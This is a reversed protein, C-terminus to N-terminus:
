LHTIQQFWTTPKGSHGSAAHFPRLIQYHCSINSSRPQMMELIRNNNTVDGAFFLAKEIPYFSVPWANVLAADTTNIGGVPKVTTFVVDYTGPCVNAFSYAGSTTTTTTHIITTGQKLDVIVNNMVTNAGNYYKVTGTIPIAAPESVTLNGTVPGCANVDTVSWPYNIGALIGTFIGTGNTVGNFTYSYPPTGGGATMTVTATGGFCTIPSTVTAGGTLVPPETVSLTGTVPGCSNADTVSWAYDLGAVVSFTQTTNVTTVSSGNFTYTYPTTGGGATMTITANGGNCLIPSTESAGGSLLAPETVDLTGTVPGCSNADTVSWAYGLGAVVSFTQTTNVTTVSSGNFTYTYPTTGGGATMTITANGGNCLIPSTESAGGSLLAPETVDLTGTVPGCSNADTVSWAYGLGAVVSFTQTTNVTTVSSGNFTYTYPTTGGGATMTITANGGNCLIPSTESAGGSLLAPETVDLTGTVPGCSNADTVSWAYGLGAVVSFTQTTNVTTVSSGNFTYTYPTTGGGATMTITANGGNCLIPSTESAGGSLLAPETVDLTGTVPGCSNADTVSWAYGLGAVVSFTQTTNVTTVSSGNFTYTYPTTGGGATMTITANGGNCLIPSTESAGGSLLAPETVDLTGTVPGCSNADTVSWAYGLGAVVSFTQTTNVTTVSSGNFTYTYPTTGGGATMTITANGGNCLIPSTESAGGSLLAPETVDLTGTVPGCSNADTVSWAYGLGAVVSFTQTTNVTTVSSGNFTYTYPTTGGGATMTITANGGNCLIPSTESAGGSLLAPETVDLTGTVPGCSNADTVSWAYGLGAVVSFTQTTNVTTVSSGNFTYTYPTTGGGATMTITANGGNCLIPSTESAGGTLLTPQTVDLLGIESVCSYVDSIYWEYGTGAEIGTFIGTTNNVGNFTYEFPATGVTATITVTGSGGNCGIPTTIAITGAPTPYVTFTFSQPTGACGNATPTVTITAVLNIAGDNQATFTPIDGSGSAVLGIDPTDNVWEFVTGTVSGSFVVATTTSQNCLAQDLPDVVDPTPYVTIDFSQQTGACGNAWPTVTITATVIASTNNVATFSAIDGTGSAALGISPLSNIWEYTTGSVPGNFVVEATPAGNCVAQDAPDTMTPTPFVTITYLEQWAGVCGSPSTPRVSIMGSIPANTTNTATFSPIIGNGSDTLGIDTNSNIWEFTCDEVTANLTTALTTADNCYEQNAVPVMYPVTNFDFLVDFFSSVCGNEDTVSGNFTYHDQPYDGSVRLTQAGNGIQYQLGDILQYDSGTYNIYFMPQAGSIINWMVGQWGGAGSVVGKDAWYAFFETPNDMAALYFANQDFSTTLLPSVPGDLGDIDLYYYENAEDICLNFGTAFDGAVATWSADDISSLLTVDTVEPITNLDFFVDFFSECGNIDAVSGSFTYSDQPYNGSIRLTQAGQGILYQLGDILQYDTGTYNIYFMPEDGNIIDWMVGQWGTAGSNVGKADWYEFFATEDGM